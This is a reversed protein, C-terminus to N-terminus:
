GVGGFVGDGAIGHIGRDIRGPIDGFIVPQRGIVRTRYDGAEPLEGEHGVFVWGGHFIRDIEAEFIQPDTYVRDHVRDDLVLEDYRIAGPDSM